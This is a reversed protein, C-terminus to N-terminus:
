EGSFTYTGASKDHKIGLSGPGSDFESIPVDDLLYRSGIYTQDAFPQKTVGAVDDPANAELGNLIADGGSALRRDVAMIMTGDVTDGHISLAVDVKACGALALLAVVGLAAATAIRRANIRM